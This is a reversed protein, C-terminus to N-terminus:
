EASSPIGKEITRGCKSCILDHTGDLHHSKIKDHHRCPLLREMEQNDGNPSFTDAFLKEVKEIAELAPCSPAFSMGAHKKDDGHFESKVLSYGGSFHKKITIM